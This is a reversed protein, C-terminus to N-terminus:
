FVAGLKEAERWLPYHEKSNLWTSQPHYIPSFRMGQFGHENVWFRLKEAVKPDAPDILGHGVFLKPYQRLCHAIYSNDWGYYRQNILVASRIGFDGMQGVQNEIPAAISVNLDRGREPHNFPFKPDLTWVELHTDIILRPEHAAARRGGSLTVAAATIGQLLRRRTMAHEIKSKESNM